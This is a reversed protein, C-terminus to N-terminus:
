TYLRHMKFNEKRIVKEKVHCLAVFETKYPDLTVEIKGSTSDDKGKAPKKYRKNPQALRNYRPSMCTASGKPRSPEPSFSTGAIAGKMARRTEFSKKLNEVRRWSEIRNEKRHKQLQEKHLKLRKAMRDDREAAKRLLDARYERIRRNRAATEQKRKLQAETQARKRTNELELLRAREASRIAKDENQKKLEKMHLSHLQDKRKRRISIEMLRLEKRRKNEHADFKLKERHAIQRRQAEEYRVAAHLALKEIHNDVQKRAYELKEDRLKQRLKREEANAAKMALNRAKRQEEKEKWMNELELKHKEREELASNQQASLKRRKEALIAVKKDRQLQRLKEREEQRKVLLRQKEMHKIKMEKDSKKRDKEMQLMRERMQNTHEVLARNKEKQEKQILRKRERLALEARNVRENLAQRESEQSLLAAIEKDSKAKLKAARQMEKELVAFEDRSIKGDGDRDLWDPIDIGEPVVFDEKEKEEEEELRSKQVRMALATPSTGATLRNVLDTQGVLNADGVSQHPRLSMDLDVSQNKSAMQLSGEPSSLGKVVPAILACERELITLLESKTQDYMEKNVEAIVMRVEMTSARASPPPLFSRVDHGEELQAQKDIGQRRCALNVVKESYKEEIEQLTPM